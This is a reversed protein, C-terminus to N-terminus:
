LNTYEIYAGNFLGSLAYMREVHLFYNWTLADANKQNEMEYLRTAVIVANKDVVYIYPQATDDTEIIRKHVEAKELNFVGALEEVDIADVLDYPMVLYIDDLKSKTRIGAQNYATSLFKFGKITDKIARLIKKYGGAQSLDITSGIKTFVNGSIGYNLLGKTYDFKDAIDSEGLESVIKSAVDSVNKGSTLAKRIESKDITTPYVERSWDKFYRVAFKTTRDPTLANAGTPDYARSNVLKVVAQEITDGNDIKYQEFLALPNVGEVQKIIELAVKGIMDYESYYNPVYNQGDSGNGYTKVVSM